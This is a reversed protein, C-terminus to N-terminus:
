LRSVVEINHGDPDHLFAAYYNQAYHLRLGPPGNCTGGALLAARYAAEVQQEDAAAFAIHTPPVTRGGETLLLANWGAFGFGVVRAGADDAIMRWGLPSLLALYFKRSTAYSLVSLEVHDFGQIKTV